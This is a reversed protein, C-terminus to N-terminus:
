ATARCQGAHGEAVCTSCREPDVKAIRARVPRASPRHGVAVTHVALPCGTSPRSSGGVAQGKGSWVEGM